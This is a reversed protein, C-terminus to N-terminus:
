RFIIASIVQEYEWKFEIDTNPSIHGKNIKLETDKYSTLDKNLTNPILGRNLIYVM